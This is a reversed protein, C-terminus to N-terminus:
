EAPEKAPPQPKPPAETGRKLGARQRWDYGGADFEGPREPPLNTLPTNKENMM